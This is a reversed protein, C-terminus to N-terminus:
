RTPSRKYAKAQQGVIEILNGMVLNVDMLHLGWNAQPQGNAGNVDGVIDDTRPDSPAGHVTIELYAANENTACEATLLGPVSVFPTMVPREPIVWPKPQTSPNTPTGATPLYAHLQGSGGGLAAPNTCAAVMGDGSARGFRTDAPPRITSRFSSYTILCGTQIASHCLPVHQFAGGVDKGKPIAISTGMLIASVLRSQAPKGDIERKILEALIFSGQSHAILVVGRGENEHELYYKWADLVDDYQVGREFPVWGGAALARRLEAFAVQRYLPAFQRCVSGFRAFQQRVINREAPDPSMDSNTGPDTSVTPYVYFCDIPANADARWPEIKFEGSASVVTTSNDIACANMDRPLDPRCLWAAPKGYDNPQVPSNFSPEAPAQPSVANSLCLCALVCAWTLHNAM